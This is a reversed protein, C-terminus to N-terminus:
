ELSNGCWKKIRIKSRSLMLPSCKRWNYYKTGFFVNGDVYVNKRFKINYNLKVGEGVYVGKGIKIDLPNGKKDAQIIEKMVDDAIFFDEPDDIEIIDKIQEYVNKRAIAEMEKLVSKNNFGMIVHQQKASVASVSLKNQNFLAILDTIYIEGQVNDSKIKNILKVM